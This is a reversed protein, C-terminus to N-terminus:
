KRVFVANEQSNYVMHYHLPTAVSGIETLRDGRKKGNEDRIPDIEVCVCTPQIGSALMALFLDTSLGEADISVFDFAGWRNTLEAWTLVAVTVSGRFKAIPKWEKYQNRDATSVADDSMEMEIYGSALGMAASIIQIRPDGAYYNLLNLLPGPSPEILVGSWGLNYLARTNSKDLANWSGVELFRGPGKGEFAELIFQEELNQSYPGKPDQWVESM